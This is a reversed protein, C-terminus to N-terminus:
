PPTPSERGGNITDVPQPRPTGEPPHEAMERPGQGDSRVIQEVPVAGLLADPEGERGGGTVLQPRGGLEAVVLADELIHELGDEELMRMCKEVRPHAALNHGDDRDDDGGGERAVGLSGDQVLDELPPHL